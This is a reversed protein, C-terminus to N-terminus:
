DLKPSTDPCQGATSITFVNVLDSEFSQRCLVYEEQIRKLIAAELSGLFTEDARVVVLEQPKLDVKASLIQQTRTPSLEDSLVYSIPWRNGVNALLLVMDTHVSWPTTPHEGLLLTPRAGDRSFTKIARVADAALGTTDFFNPNAEQDIMPQLTFRNMAAPFDGSILSIILPKYPGDARFVAPISFAISTAIVVGLAATLFRRVSNDQNPQALLSLFAPIVLVAFPLFAIILTFDVSRGVYYSSMVITLGAVPAYRRIMVTSTLGSEDQVPDNDSPPQSGSFAGQLSLYWAISLCLGIAAAIAVWGLFQGTAAISWFESAMNYIMLFDLNPQLNPLQNVTLITFTSVISAALFLPLLLSWFTSSFLQTWKRNKAFELCIFLSVIACGGLLIESSWLACLTVSVTLLLSSRRHEGLLSISLVVLACPLYRLGMSSPVSNLSYNGYWWGSLLVSIAFFGIWVAALKHETMRYLCVLLCCYLVLSHLQAMANAAHLNPGGFVFAVWTMLMPGLGYQSFTDVMPLGGSNLLQNAPGANTLFHLVDSNFRVDFYVVFVAVLSAFLTKTEMRQRKASPLLSAYHILFVAGLVVLVGVLVAFIFAGVGPSPQLGGFLGWITGLLPVRGDLQFAFLLAVLAASLAGFETITLSNFELKLFSLVSSLNWRDILGLSLIVLFVFHCLGIVATVFYLIPLWTSPNSGSVWIIVSFIILACSAAVVALSASGTLATRYARRPTQEETLLFAAAVAPPVIVTITAYLVFDFYKSNGILLELIVTAQLTFSLFVLLIAAIDDVAISPRRAILSKELM